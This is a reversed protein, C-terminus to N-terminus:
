SAQLEICARKRKKEAKRAALSSAYTKIDWNPQQERTSHRCMEIYEGEDGGKLYRRNATTREFEAVKKPLV